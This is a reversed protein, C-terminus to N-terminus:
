KAMRELKGKVTLNQPNLKLVQRYCETADKNNNQSIYYDGLREYAEIDRPDAAIREILAEELEKRVSDPYVVKKSIMAGELYDRKRRKVELKRARMEEQERKSVQISIKRVDPIIKKNNVKEEKDFKEKAVNVETKRRRLIKLKNENWNHFKLSFIKFWQSIRELVHLVKAKLSIVLKSSEKEKNELIKKEIESSKRSILFIILALSIVIIIPPLILYLDFM